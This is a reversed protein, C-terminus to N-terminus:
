RDGGAADGGNSLEYLRFRTPASSEFLLRYGPISGYVAADRHLLRFAASNRPPGPIDQPLGAEYRTGWLFPSDVILYRADFEGRLLEKFQAPTTAYLGRTFREIRDRSRTTEYKPQLVIAHSTHALVAASTVFDAAVAGEEPLEREIFHLTEALQEVHRPTYWLKVSTNDLVTCFLLLQVLVLAAVWAVRRRAEFSSWLLLVVVVPALISALVMLRRVLLTLLLAATAFAVLTMWFGDGRGRRWGGLSGFAAVPVLFGLAGLTTTLLIPSGTRFPGQWLLRAGYSIEQPDAPLEGLHSLKFWMMEVVHSYDGSGQVLWARGVVVAAAAAAATAGRVLATAESRRALLPLASMVALMAVPASLLFLKSRLVPVAVAGAALVGLFLWGKRDGAVNEGTRLFWAFLCAVEVAFVFSMAHWTALAGVAAVASLVLARTSGRRRARALLFLHLAFFPLSMDERVLITGVTRYSATATVHLLGALLAPGPGGSLERALGVVGLVALSAFLSMVIVAVVHLPRDRGALLYSWAVLFEQGVTFMAPIDTTEPHEIRPDSRFDDPPWGGNEVLRETVYYILAPDTRLVGVPDPQVMIPVSFAIALRIAAASGVLALLLWPFLRSLLDPARGARGPEHEGSREPDARM